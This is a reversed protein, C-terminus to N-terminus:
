SNDPVQQPRSDDPAHKVLAQHCIVNGSLDRTFYPAGYPQFGFTINEAVRSAFDDKDVPAFILIYNTITRM